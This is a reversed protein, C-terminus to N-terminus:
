TAEQNQQSSVPAEFYFQEGSGINKDMQSRIGGSDLVKQSSGGGFSGLMSNGRGKNVGAM